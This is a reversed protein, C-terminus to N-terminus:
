NRVEEADEEEGPKLSPERIRLFTKIFDCDQVEELEDDINKVVDSDFVQRPTDILDYNAEMYSPRVVSAPAKFEPDAM